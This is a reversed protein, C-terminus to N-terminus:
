AKRNFWATALQANREHGKAIEAALLKEIQGGLLPIRVSIEGEVRRRCGGPAPELWFAGSGQCRERSVPPVLEWWLHFRADDM